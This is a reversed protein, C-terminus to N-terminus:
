MRELAQSLDAILDEANELGVSLRMDGLSIGLMDFQEPPLEKLYSIAPAYILSEHGGWSVGILFLKLSNFFRKIEVLEDSDLQFGMLGSSGSMQKRALVYQPHSPLGPHSVSRVRPHKELFSAVALANEQHKEMRMPLTRLSRMLLWAEFPAMTGGLLEAENVSLQRIDDASGLVLGAIVDSHGALYKSCTHIEMDIGLELPQQFLPTAWSNDILTSIGRDRALKAVGALDQLSFVASSPSELFILRTEPRIAAEFEEVTEGSVFTVDLNMKPGLYQSLLNNTPGYVNKVVIVHDGANIHFLIAATIAAMGSSFLRAGGAAAMAALKEEVMRVTPNTGRSYIANEVRDDFAEDIADWSEFTFLTNQFIPPVVAGEYKTRDEAHHTLITEPHPRPKM